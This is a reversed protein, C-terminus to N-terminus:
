AERDAAAMGDDYGDDYGDRYDGCRRHDCDRDRCPVPLQKAM